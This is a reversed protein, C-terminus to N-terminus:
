VIGSVQSLRFRVIRPGHAQSYDMGAWYRGEDYVIHSLRLSDGLMVTDGERIEAQQEPTFPETRLYTYGM